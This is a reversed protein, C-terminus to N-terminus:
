VDRGDDQIDSWRENNRRKEAAERERQAIRGEDPVYDYSGSEDWRSWYHNDHPYDERSM